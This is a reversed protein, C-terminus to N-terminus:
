QFRLLDKIRLFSLIRRLFFGPFCGLIINLFSILCSLIINRFCILSLGFFLFVFWSVRLRTSTKRRARRTRRPLIGLAPTARLGIEQSPNLYCVIKNKRQARQPSIYFFRLSASLASFFIIMHDTLQSTPMVDDAKIWVQSTFYHRFLFILKQEPM